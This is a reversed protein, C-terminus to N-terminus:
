ENIIQEYDDNTHVPIRTTPTKSGRTNMEALFSLHIASDKFFFYTYARKEM